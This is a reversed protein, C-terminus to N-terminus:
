RRRRRGLLGAALLTPVGALGPVTGQPPRTRLPVKDSAGNDFGRFRLLLNWDAVFDIVPADREFAGSWTWTATEGAALGRTPSGGGLWQDTVSAGFERAGFPATNVSDLNRWADSLGSMGGGGDFVFAGSGMSSPADFAIATLFGGVTSENTLTLTLVKGGGFDELALSGSALGYSPDNSSRANDTTVLIADAAISGTIAAALLPGVVVPNGYRMEDRM